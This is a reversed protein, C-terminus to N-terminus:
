SLAPVSWAGSWVRGGGVFVEGNMVPSVAPGLDQHSSRGPSRRFARGREEADREEGSDDNAVFYYAGTEPDVARFFANWLYLTHPPSGPPHISQYYRPTGLAPKLTKRSIVFFTQTGRADGALYIRSRDFSIQVSQWATSEVVVRWSGNAGHKRSRWISQNVGDGVTMWVDGFHYPVAAVGHIHRIERVLSFRIGTFVTQVGTFERAQNRIATSASTCSIATPM